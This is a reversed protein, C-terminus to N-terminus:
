AYQEFTKCERPQLMNVIVAGDLIIADVTPSKNVTVPPAPLICRLIDSKNTAPRLKGMM